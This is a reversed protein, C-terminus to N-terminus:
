GRAYIKVNGSNVPLGVALRSGDPSFKVNKLEGSGSHVVEGAVLGGAETFSVVAVKGGKCGVAVLSGDATLDVSAIGGQLTGTLVLNSSASWDATKIMTLHKNQTGSVLWEGDASFAVANVNGSGVTGSISKPGDWTSAGPAKCYIRPTATNYAFCHGLTASSMGAAAIVNLGAGALTTEATGDAAYVKFQYNTLGAAVYAGDTTWAVSKSASGISISLSESWDSVLTIKIKSDHGVSALKDGVPSFAIQIQQNQHRGTWSTVEAWDLGVIKVGLTQDGIALYQCDPSWSLGQVVGSNKTSLTNELTPFSAPSSWAAIATPGSWAVPCGALGSSPPPTPSATPQATPPPTTPATPPPTTPSLTTPASTILECFGLLAMEQLSKGMQKAYCRFINNDFADACSPKVTAGKASAVHYHIQRKQAFTWSGRRPRVATM